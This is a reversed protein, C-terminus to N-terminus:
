STSTSVQDAPAFKGEPGALHWALLGFPAFCFANTVGHYRVMTGISLLGPDIARTYGYGAALAMTWLLAVGAVALSARAAGSLRRNAVRDSAVALALLVGALLVAGAAFGAAGAFEAIRLGALRSLTIGVAVAPMGALVVGAGVRYIRYTLGSELVRGALGAVVPLLLGAYHFHAATLQVITTPFGLDIGLVYLLYSGPGVVGYVTGADILTEGVPALGRDFSRLLGYVALLGMTGLWPVTSLAATAGPALVVAAVSGVAGVPQILVAARYVSRRRGGPGTPSLLAMAAPVLVLTAFLVVADVIGPGVLAAVGVWAAGGVGASARSVTSADELWGVM